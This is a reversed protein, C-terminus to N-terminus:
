CSLNSIVMFTANLTNALVRSLFTKGTGPDGEFIIGRKTPLKNLKKLKVQKEDLYDIINTQVIARVEKDIFIDDFTVQPLDIFQGEQDFVSDKYQNYEKIAKRFM